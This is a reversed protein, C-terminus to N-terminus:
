PKDDRLFPRTALLYIPSARGAAGAVAAVAAQLPFATAVLGAFTFGVAASWITAGSVADVGAGTAPPHRLVLYLAAFLGSVAVLPPNRARVTRHSGHHATGCAHRASSARIAVVVAAVASVAADRAPDTRESGADAVM